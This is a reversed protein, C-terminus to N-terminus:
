NDIIGKLIYAVVDTTFSNGTLKVRNTKNALSTYGKRYGQLVDREDETLRRFVKNKEDLVYTANNQARLTPTTKLGIKNDSWGSTIGLKMTHFDKKCNFIEQINRTINERIQPKITHCIKHGCEHIDYNKPNVDELVEKLQPNSFVLPHKIDFNAFYYRERNQPVFNNSNILVSKVGLIDEFVGLWKKSMKVNELLFYKPKVIKLVRVYEWFLWSQGEFEYGLERLELYKSFSTININEKTSLGKRKGAFSLNQCPSGGVLLDVKGISIIDERSLKTVDGLRYKEDQPYNKNAVQIAYKDIESSYYKEVKAGAKELAVRAGSMGDFLSLVIM